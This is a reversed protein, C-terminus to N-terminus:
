RAAEPQLAVRSLVPRAHNAAREELSPGVASVVIRAATEPAPSVLEAASVASGFLRSLDAGVPDVESCGATAWRGTSVLSWRVGLGGVLLLLLRWL